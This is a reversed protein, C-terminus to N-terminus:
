FVVEAGDLSWLRTTAVELHNDGLVVCEVQMGGPVTLEFRGISDVPSTDVVGDDGRAQVWKAGFEMLKRGLRGSLRASGVFEFRARKRKGCSVRVRMSRPYAIMKSVDNSARIIYEGEPLGEFECVGSQGCDERWTFLPSSGIVYELKVTYRGAMVNASHLSVSLQGCQLNQPGLQLLLDRADDSGVTVQQTAVRPRHGGSVEAVVDAPGYDLDNFAFRGETSCVARSVGGSRSVAFVRAGSAAGGDWELVKGSMRGGVRVLPVRLNHETANGDVVFQLMPTGSGQAVRFGSKYFSCALIRRMGATGNVPAVAKIEFTGDGATTTSGALCTGEPPFVLVGGVAMHTIADYVTGRITVGTEVVLDLTLISGAAVVQEIYWVTPAYGRVEIRISEVVGSAVRARYEGTHGISAFSTADYRLSSTSFVVRGGSTLNGGEDRVRGEITALPTALAGSPSELASVVTLLWHLVLSILVLVLHAIM